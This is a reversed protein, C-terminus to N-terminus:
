ILEDHLTHSIHKFSFKTKFHVHMSTVKCFLHWGGTKSHVWYLHWGYFAAPSHKQNFFDHYVSHLRNWELIFCFNSKNGWDQFLSVEEKSWNGLAGLIPPNLSKSLLNSLWSAASIPCSQAQDAFYFFLIAPLMSEFTLGIMNVRMLNHKRFRLVITITVCPILILPGSKIPRWLIILHPTWM